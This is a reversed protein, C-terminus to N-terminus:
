GQIKFIQLWNGLSHILQSLMNAHQMTKVDIQWCMETKITLDYDFRRRIVEKVIDTAKTSPKVQEENAENQM